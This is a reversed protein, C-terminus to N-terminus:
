RRPRSLSPLPPPFSVVGTNLHTVVANGSYNAVVLDILGDGNVDAPFSGASGGAQFNTFPRFTGDGNGLFVSATNSYLGTTIVFDTNGDHNFDAAQVLIPTRYEESAAQSEIFAM